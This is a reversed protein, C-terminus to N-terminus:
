LIVNRINGTDVATATTVCTPGAWNAKVIQIDYLYVDLAANASNNAIICTGAGTCDTSTYYIRSWTGTATLDSSYAATSNAKLRMTQTGGAVTKVWASMTFSGTGVAPNYGSGRVYQLAGGTCTLRSFTSTAGTPDVGSVTALTSTADNAWTAQTIDNSNKVLNQKQAVATRASSTSRASSVNRLNGTNIATTTTSVKPGQWNAAVIQYDTAYIGSANDGTYSPFSASYSPTASDSTFICNYIAGLDVARATISIRYWGNGESSITYSPEVVTGTTSSGLFTGTRLDVLVSYRSLGAGIIIELGGYRRTAEKLSASITYYDTPVVSGTNRYLIHFGTSNDEVIQDATMTGDPGIAANSIIPTGAKLGAKLWDSNAGNKSHTLLNQRQAIATRAM